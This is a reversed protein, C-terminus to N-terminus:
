LLAEPSFFVLQCKGDMIDAETSDDIGGTCLSYVASINREMM